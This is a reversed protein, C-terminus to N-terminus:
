IFLYTLSTLTLSASFLPLNIRRSSSDGSHNHGHNDDHNDHDESDNSGKQSVKGTSWEITYRGRNRGHYGMFHDAGNAAWIIEDGGTTNFAKGNINDTEFSLATFCPTTEFTAVSDAVATQWHRFATSDPDIKYTQVSPEKSIDLGTVPSYDGGPIALFVEGGDMGNHYGNPDAFGLGIWGHVNNFALRAKVTEGTVSWSLFAGDNEATTLNAMHDFTGDMYFAEWDGACTEDQGPIEPYNTHNQISNTCSPYFDGHLKGDPVVQDRPSACQLQLNQEACTTVTLNQDALPMCRFWCFLEDDACDDTGALNRGTLVSEMHPSSCGLGSPIGGQASEITQKRADGYTQGAVSSSAEKPPLVM